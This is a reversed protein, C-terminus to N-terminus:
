DTSLLYVSIAEQLTAAGHAKLLFCIEDLKIAKGAQYVRYM